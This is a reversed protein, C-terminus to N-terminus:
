VSTLIMVPSQGPQEQVQTSEPSADTPPTIGTENSQRGANIKSQLFNFMSKCESCIFEPDNKADKNWLFHVMKLSHAGSDKVIQKKAETPTNSLKSNMGGQILALNGFSDIVQKPIEQDKNLKSHQPIIHEISNCKRFRFSEILKRVDEKVSNNWPNNEEHKDKWVKLLEYDLRYFWYYDANGYTLKDANSLDKSRLKRSNGDLLSNDIRELEEIFADISKDEGQLWKFAHILWHHPETSVHLFSQLHILRKKNNDNLDTFTSVETGDDPKNDTKKKGLTYGETARSIFIFYKCLSETQEKVVSMFKEIDIKQANHFTELLKAQDPSIDQDLYRRLAILLFEPITVIAWNLPERTKPKNGAFEKQGNLINELSSPSTGQKQNVNSTDTNVGDATNDDSPIDKLCEVMDNWIKNYINRTEEVEVDRMLWVRLIEHKELQKGRNNMRVFHQNKDIPSYDAPMESLFFTAKEYIYKAFDSRYKDPVISQFFERATEYATVMCQNCKTNDRNDEFSYLFEDDAERGHFKLRKNTRDGIFNKWEGYKSAAKGVLMLTTIRQQGDILDYMNGESEVVSLIGVYYTNSPNGFAEYLDNLLQKVQKPEWAYPRQYLPIRFRCDGVTQPTIGQVNSTM